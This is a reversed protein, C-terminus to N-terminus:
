RPVDPTLVIPPQDGITFEIRVQQTGPPVAIEVSVQPEVRQREFLVRQGARVELQGASLSPTVRLKGSALFEYNLPAVVEALFNSRAAAVTPAAQDTLRPPFGGM